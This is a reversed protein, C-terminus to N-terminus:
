GGLARAFISFQEAFIPALVITSTRANFIVTSSCRCDVRFERGDTKVMEILVPCVRSTIDNPRQLTYCCTIAHNYDYEFSPEARTAAKHARMCVGRYKTHVTHLVFFCCTQQTIVGILTCM